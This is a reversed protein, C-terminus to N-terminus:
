FEPSVLPRNRRRAPSMASGRGVAMPKKIAKSRTMSGSGSIGALPRFSSGGPMLENGLDNSSPAEAEFVSLMRGFYRRLAPEIGERPEQWFRTGALSDPAAILFRSLFGQDRLLPDALVRGAAEPQVMLHAALRRGHLDILGEGARLRRLGLGDWLSSFSAATRLKSEPTFGHGNLFQGGEASFIGLAGPLEPMHKALGEATSEGLTLYPRIPAPPEPGLAMMEDRRAALDKKGREIQNRQGRWAALEAAHRKVLPEFEDGLREERKRVPAMAENDASSKRDGSEAITLLFLSLPRSQGYPLRVDALAQAALSAVGLVSQASRGTSSM